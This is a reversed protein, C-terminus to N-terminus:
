HITRLRSQRHLIWQVSQDFYIRFPQNALSSFGSQKLIQLSHRIPAPHLALPNGQFHAKAHFQFHSQYLVIRLLAGAAVTDWSEFQV